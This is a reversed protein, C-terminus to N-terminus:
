YENKSNLPLVINAFFHGTSENSVQMSGKISGIRSQMNTMGLGGVQEADSFGSGDDKYNLTLAANSANVNLEIKQAGSHHLTNSILEQVVRFVALEERESLRLDDTGDMTFSLSVQESDNLRNALEKLAEWLGLRALTPPLLDYSIRRVNALGDKVMDFTQDLVKEREEEHKAKKLYNLNLKMTSLLSGIDDHLDSAIRKREKEQVEITANLLKQRHEVEAQQIHLKQTVIKKQYSILFALVLVIILVILASSFIIFALIQNGDEQM